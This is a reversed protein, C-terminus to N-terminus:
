GCNTRYATKSDLAQLDGALEGSAGGLSVSASAYRFWGDIKDVVTCPGHPYGVVDKVRTLEGTAYWTASLTATRTYVDECAKGECVPTSLDIATPALEAWSLEDFDMAFTGAVDACGREYRDGTTVDVCAVITTGSKDPGVDLWADGCTGDDTCITGSGRAVFNSNRDIITGQASASGAFGLSGAVLGLLTLALMLHRNHLFPRVFM